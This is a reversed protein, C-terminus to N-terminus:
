EGHQQLDARLVAILKEMDVPMPAEWFMEKGTIPHILGLKRAHLAQRRFNRLTSVFMDDSDPPLKLRGGYVPDGLV